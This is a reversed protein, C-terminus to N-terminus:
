SRGPLMMWFAAVRKGGSPRPESRLSPVAVPAPQAPPAAAPAAEAPAPPATEAVVKEETAQPVPQAPPAPPVATVVPPPEPAPIPEDDETVPQAPVEPPSSPLVRIAGPVVTPPE